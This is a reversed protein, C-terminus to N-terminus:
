SIPSKGFNWKRPFPVLALSARKKRFGLFGSGHGPFVDCEFARFGTGFSLGNRAVHGAAVFLQLGLTHLLLLVVRMQLAVGQVALDLLDLIPPSVNLGVHILRNKLPICAARQQSACRLYTCIYYQSPQITKHM